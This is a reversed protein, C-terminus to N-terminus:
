TNQTSCLSLSQCTWNSRVLKNNAMVGLDREYTTEGLIPDVGAADTMKFKFHKHHLDIPDLDEDILTDELYGRDLIEREQRDLVNVQM